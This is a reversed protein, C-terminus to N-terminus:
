FFFYIRLIINLNYFIIYCIQKINVIINQESRFKLEQIVQIIQIYNSFMNIRNDYAVQINNILFILEMGEDCAISLFPLYLNLIYQISTNKNYL